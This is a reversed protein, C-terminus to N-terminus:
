YNPINRMQEWDRTKAWSPKKTAKKPTGKLGKGISRAGLLQAGGSLAKGGIIQAIRTRAMKPDNVLQTMGYVYMFDNPTLGQKRAEQQFRKVSLDLQQNENINNQSRLKSLSLKFTNKMSERYEKDLNWRANAEQHKLSNDYGQSVGHRFENDAEEGTKRITEKRQQLELQHLQQQNYQAQPQGLNLAAKTHDTTAENYTPSSAANGSTGTGYILNQNLGADKFREMQSLPTNYENQRKWQELDMGYSYKALEKNAKKQAEINRKDTGRQLLSNIPSMIADLVGM